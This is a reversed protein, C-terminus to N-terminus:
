FGPNQKIRPNQDIVSQPIPLVLDNKNLQYGKSTMVPLARGTRKLYFFRKFEFALEVRREHAIALSLDNSYYQGSPYSPSGWDPLGVRQRVMNLYTPDNTAEAYMLLVDAYRLVMFDNACQEEQGVVEATSDVWKTIYYVKV